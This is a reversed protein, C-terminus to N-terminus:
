LSSRSGGRNRAPLWDYVFLLLPIRSTTNRKGYVRYDVCSTFHSNELSLLWRWRRSWWRPLRDDIHACGSRSNEGQRFSMGQIIGFLPRSDLRQGPQAVPRRRIRLDYHQNPVFGVDKLTRPTPEDGDHSFRSSGAIM